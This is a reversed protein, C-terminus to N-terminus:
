DDFLRLCGNMRSSEPRDKVHQPKGATAHLDNYRCVARVNEIGLSDLISVQSDQAPLMAVSTDVTNRLSNPRGQSLVKRTCALHETRVGQWGLLPGVRIRM